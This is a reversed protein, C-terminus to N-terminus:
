EEGAYFQELFEGIRRIDMSKSFYGHIDNDMCMAQLTPADLDSFLVVVFVIFLGLKSKFFNGINRPNM